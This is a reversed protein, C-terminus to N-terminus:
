NSEYNKIAHKVQFYRHRVAAYESRIRNKLEILEAMSLNNFNMDEVNYKNLCELHKKLFAKNVPMGKRTFACQQNVVRISNILTSHDRNLFSAIDAQSFYPFITYVVVLTSHRADRIPAERSRSKLQELSVGWVEACGEFTEVVERPLVGDIRRM